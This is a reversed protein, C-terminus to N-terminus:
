RMKGFVALRTCPAVDHLRSTVSIRKTLSRSWAEIKTFVMGLARAWPPQIRAGRIADVNRNHAARSYGTVELTMIRRGSPRPVDKECRDVGPNTGGTGRRPYVLDNTVLSGRGRYGPM